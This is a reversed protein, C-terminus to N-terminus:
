PRRTAQFPVAHWPEPIRCHAGDPTCLAESWHITIEEHHFNLPKNIDLNEPDVSTPRPRRRTGTPESM